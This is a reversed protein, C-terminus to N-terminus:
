QRHNVVYERKENQPLIIQFRWIVKGDFSSTM